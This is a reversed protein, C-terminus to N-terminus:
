NSEIPILRQGFGLGLRQHTHEAFHADCVFAWFGNITQADYIAKSSCYDCQANHYDPATVWGSEEAQQLQLREILVSRITDWQHQQEETINWNTNM